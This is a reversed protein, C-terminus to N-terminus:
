KEGKDFDIAQVPCSPRCSGDGICLDLNIDVSQDPNRIFTPCGFKELCDHTKNCTEQDITIHKKVYGPKKQQYRTFKLMCPHEAIVVSIGKIKLSQKVLDTLKSQNYTDCSLISEIGLGELLNKIPIESGAHDQHGTMATTGNEMIILTINHHNFVTNILGPLGAHFFTSDGLFAVVRKKDNFLSLGSAMGCSAGMCMLIEGVNYPPMFGLTHCGIDAVTVDETEMAKKIAFFASRHGCGPCMQAPRQPVQIASTKIECVVSKPANLMMDPWVAALKEMVKDPTYEGVYDEDEKKGTLNTKLGSDYALSKIQIELFDDLEEIILVEDHAKLFSLIIDEELPNVAGLKLIDPTYQADEFVDLVSLFTLGSTIIGKGRNNKSTLEKNLGADKIYYKAQRMKKISQRKMDLALSTLPIYPGNQKNFDTKYPTQGDYKDFAIKQRAHCVHTTLRLVVATQEKKALAAAHKYYTYAEKPSAPEFVTIRSMKYINRNDQENQSSNAGPDDGLVVVMGGIINMLSLQVFTDLAVNLGVSKFFVCSLNGNLAAGFAVETAVKENVSFEFYFPRVAEPISSIATAIEPTPSGPYSSVVTTGTEIMARVVAENGMLIEEFPDKGMLIEGTKKM